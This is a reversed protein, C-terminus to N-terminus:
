SPFLGPASRVAQVQSSSECQREGKPCMRANERTESTHRTTVSSHSAPPRARTPQCSSEILLSGAQQRTASRHEARQVLRVVRHLVRPQFEVTGVPPLDLLEAGLQRGHDSLDSSWRAHRDVARLSRSPGPSAPTLAPRGPASAAQGATAQTTASQARARPHSSDAVSEARATAAAEPRSRAVHLRCSPAAPSGLGVGRRGRGAELGGQRTWIRSGLGAGHM